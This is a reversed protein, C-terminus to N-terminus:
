VLYLDNSLMEISVHTTNTANRDYIKILYQDTLNCIEHNVFDFDM